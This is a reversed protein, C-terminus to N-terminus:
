GANYACGFNYQSKRHGRGAARELWTAAAAYDVAVGQGVSYACGVYSQAELYGGDAARLEWRFALDLSQHLGEKGGRYWGALRHAATSDTRAASMVQRARESPAM